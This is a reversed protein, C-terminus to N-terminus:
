ICTCTCIKAYMCIYQLACNHVFFYVYKIFMHITSVGRVARAGLSPPRCLLPCAGPYPVASSGQARGRRREPAAPVSEPNHTHPPRGSPPPRSSGRWRSACPTCACAASACDCLTGGMCHEKINYIYIYIYIDRQLTLSGGICVFVHRGDQSRSEAWRMADEGAKVAGNQGWGM